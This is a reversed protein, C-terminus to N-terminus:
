MRRFRVALLTTAAGLAAPEPRWRRRGRLTSRTVRCAHCPRCWWPRSAPRTCCPSPSWPADPPRATARPSSSWAAGKEVAVTPAEELTETVHEGIKSLKDSGCCPCAEPAPLVARERPLHAPFPRRGRPKRIHAKVEAGAAAAKEAALDDEAATSELDEIEMELQELLRKKSESSLGHRERKLKEIKFELAAIIARSNSLDAKVSAAEAKASALEAKASTADAKAEVLKTEAEDARLLAAALAAKLADPSDPLHPTEM